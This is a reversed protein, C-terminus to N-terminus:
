AEAPLAVTLVKEPSFTLFLWYKWSVIRNEGPAIETFDPAVSVKSYPSLSCSGCVSV